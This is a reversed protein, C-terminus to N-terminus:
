IDQRFYIYSKNLIMKKMYTEIYETKMIHPPHVGRCEGLHGLVYLLRVGM